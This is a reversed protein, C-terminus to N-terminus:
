HKVRNLLLLQSESISDESCYQFSLTCGKRALCRIKGLLFGTRARLKPEALEEEHKVTEWDGLILGVDPLTLWTTLDM